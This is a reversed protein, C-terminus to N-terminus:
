PSMSYMACFPLFCQPTGSTGSVNIDYYKAVLLLVIPIITYLYAMGNSVENLPLFWLANIMSCNIRINENNKYVSSLGLNQIKRWMSQCLHFFCGKVQVSVGFVHKTASIAGIEFDM